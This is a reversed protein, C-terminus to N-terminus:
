STFFFVYPRSFSCVPLIMSAFSQYTDPVDQQSLQNLATAAVQVANESVHTSPRSFDRDFSDPPPSSVVNSANASQLVQLLADLGILASSDPHNASNSGNIQGLDPDDTSEPQAEPIRISAYVTRLGVQVHSQQESM